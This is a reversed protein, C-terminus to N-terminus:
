NGNDEEIRLQVIKKLKFLLNVRFTGKSTVLKGIAYQSTDKGGEFLVTFKMVPHQEFFSKIIQEAQAKTCINESGLIDLEINNNFYNVIEKAVGSKFASKLGEPVESGIKSNVVQFNLGILVLSFLLKVRKM